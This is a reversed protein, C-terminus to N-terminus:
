WPADRTDIGLAIEKTGFPKVVARTNEKAQVVEALVDAEAVGGHM